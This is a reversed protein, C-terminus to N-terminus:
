LCITEVFHVLYKGKLEQAKREERYLESMILPRQEEHVKGKLRCLQEYAEYGYRFLRLTTSEQFSLLKRILLIRPKNTGM